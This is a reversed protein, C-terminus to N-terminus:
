QPKTISVGPIQLADAIFLDREQQTEFQFRAVAPLRNSNPKWGVFSGGIHVLHLAVTGVTSDDAVRAPDITLTVEFNVPRRGHVRLKKRTGVLGEAETPQLLEVAMDLDIEGRSWRQFVRRAVFELASHKASGRLAFHHELPM